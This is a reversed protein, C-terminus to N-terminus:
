IILPAYVERDRRLALLFRDAVTFTKQRIANDGFWGSEYGYRLVRANPAVSPLMDTDQLWNVYRPSKPDRSINKCWTDDAHAGIGHIAIISTAGKLYLALM